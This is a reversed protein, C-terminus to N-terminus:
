QIHEEDNLEPENSYKELTKILTKALDPVDVQNAFIEKVTVAKGYFKENAGNDQTLIGGEFSIGGYLGKAKAYVLFATDPGIKADTDRGYPGVAVSADIGLKCKMKLMSEVGSDNMILLIADIAQGGIQLGFSGEGSTVFSPASWKGSDKDKVLAVGKGGKVGFIFGVKYQRIIVVGYCKKLLSSPISTDPTSMIEELYNNAREVRANLKEMSVAYVDTAILLFCCITFLVFKSRM